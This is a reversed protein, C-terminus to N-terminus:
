QMCLLNFGYTCACAGCCWVCARACVCTFPAVFKSGGVPILYPKKGEQELRKGLDSLLQPSGVRNYEAVSVLHLQANMMM